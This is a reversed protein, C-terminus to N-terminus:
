KIPSLRIESGSRYELGSFQSYVQGNNFKSVQEIAYKFEDAEWSTPNEDDLYQPMQRSYYNPWNIVPVCGEFEECIDLVQEFSGFM